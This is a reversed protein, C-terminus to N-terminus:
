KSVGQLQDTYKSVIRQRDAETMESRIQAEALEVAKAAVFTQLDARASKLAGAVEREAAEAIRRVEEDTRATVRVAEAEAEAEAERRIQAREDELRSLRANVEALKAEAASRENKARDLEERIRRSRSDFFAALPKGLIFALIGLFVAMNVAKAAVASWDTGHAEDAALLLFGLFLNTM